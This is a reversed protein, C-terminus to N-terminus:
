VSTSPKLSNPIKSWMSSPTCLDLCFKVLFGGERKWDGRDETGWREWERCLKASPAMRGACVYTAMVTRRCASAPMWWCGCACQAASGVVIYQRHRRRKFSAMKLAVCEGCIVLLEAAASLGRSGKLWNFNQGSSCLQVFFWMQSYFSQGKM